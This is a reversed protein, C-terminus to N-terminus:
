VGIRPSYGDIRPTRLDSRPLFKTIEMNPSFQPACSRAAYRWRAQAQASIASSSARPRGRALNPRLRADRAGPRGSPVCKSACRRRLTSDSPGSQCRPEGRRRTSGVYSRRAASTSDPTRRAWSFKAFAARPARARRPSAAASATSSMRCRALGSSSRRDARCARGCGCRPPARRRASRRRRVNRRASWQQWRCQRTCQRVYTRLAPRNGLYLLV